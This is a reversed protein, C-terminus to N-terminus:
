VNSELEGFAVLRRGAWALPQGADVRRTTLHDGNATSSGVSPNEAQLPDVRLDRDLCEDPDPGHPGPRHRHGRSAWTPDDILV